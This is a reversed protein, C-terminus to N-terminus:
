SCGEMLNLVPIGIERAYDICNKTGGSTGNWVALVLNSHNVMWENRVQMLSPHYNMDTVLVVEDAQKIIYEYIRKSQGTWRSSYHRCPIACCLKLNYREQKLELVALAFIQDVGLAMGCIAKKCGYEKLKMKFSERLDKWRPEDYNYGYLKEPRHGTVCIITGTKIDTKNEEACDIM